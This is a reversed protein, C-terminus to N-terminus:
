RQSEREAEERSAEDEAKVKDSEPPTLKTTRAITLTDLNFIVDRLHFAAFEALSLQAAHHMKHGLYELICPAWCPYGSQSKQMWLQTFCLWQPWRVQATGALSARHSRVLTVDALVPIRKAANAAAEARCALVEIEARRARWQHRCTFVPAEDESSPYSCQFLTKRALLPDNCHGRGPCTLLTGLLSKFAANDEGNNLDPTPCKLAELAVVTCQGQLDLEQVFSDALAYHADFLVLYAKRESEEIRSKKAKPARHVHRVYTYFDLEYLFPGRHLWDDHSSTTQALAKTSLIPLGDEELVEEAPPERAPEDARPQEARVAESSEHYEKGAEAENEKSEQDDSGESGGHSEEDGADEEDEEEEADRPRQPATGDSAEGTMCSMTADVAIVDLSRYAEERVDPAEILQHAPQQLLRQCEKLIYMPRSLFVQVARHTKRADGGTRIFSAMECCSIWSCRNAACAIKLTAKRAREQASQGAGSAQVSAEEEEELRRLGLAMNSLLNQMQALPKGQYKTIYYDCNHAAQFMAVISHFCRRLLPEEPLRRRVGYMALALKPDVEPPDREGANSTQLARLDLARPMFQFDNNSRSWTQGVDSSASRFPTHRPVAVRCFEGHENTMAIHATTVLKKGRRRFAKTVLKDAVACMYTFIVIHFFFFRCAASWGKQLAKEAAEKAKKVYKICTMTCDHDHNFQHLARFDRCFSLAWAGADATLSNLVASAEPAEESGIGVVHDEEEDLRWTPLARTTEQNEVDSAMGLETLVRVDGVSQPLRYSPMLSQHCGQLSVQSYSPRAEREEAVARTQELVQHGLREERTTELFARVSGDLEVGGDLRSRIQQKKTFKEPLVTQRMQAAPLTSAEYQLTEACRVLAEKMAELLSHLM